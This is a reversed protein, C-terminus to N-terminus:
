KGGTMPVFRVPLVERARVAGAADKDIVTLQQVAAVAGVPVVMRGGPKLQAVLREPIREPAATVLIGDFPAAEPWGQYGDGTRVEVNDYGMRALREKAEAALAAVIEITHVQKVLPSLVAAQYGSGTGVELVVDGPRPRLLSTMLAVILPQSITQGSGIALPRNDYSQARVADPVFAHRPVRGMVALVDDALAGPAILREMEPRHSELVRMMDARAADYDQAGAPAAGALSLVFM